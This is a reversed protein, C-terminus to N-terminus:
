SVPVRMLAELKSSQMNTKPTCYPRTEMKQNFAVVKKKRTAGAGFFHPPESSGIPKQDIQCLGFAPLTTLCHASCNAFVPLHPVRTLEPRRKRGFRFNQSGRRSGAPVPHIHDLGCAPLTALWNALLVPLHLPDCLLEPPTETLLSLKAFRPEPLYRKLLVRECRESDGGKARCTHYLELSPM